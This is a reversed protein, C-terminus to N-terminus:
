ARKIIGKAVVPVSSDGTIETGMETLPSSAVHKNFYSFQSLLYKQLLHSCGYFGASPSRSSHVTTMVSKLVDFSFFKQFFLGQRCDPAHYKKFKENETVSLM